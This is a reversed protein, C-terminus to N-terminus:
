LAQRKINESDFGLFYDVLFSYSRTSLLPLILDAFMEFYSGSTPM